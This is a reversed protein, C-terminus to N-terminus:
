RVKNRVQLTHRRTSESLSTNTFGQRRGVIDVIGSYLTLKEVGGLLSKSGVRTVTALGPGLEELAKIHIRLFNERAAFHQSEDLGQKALAINFQKLFELANQGVGANGTTGEAVIGPVGDRQRLNVETAATPAAGAVASKRPVIGGRGAALAVHHFLLNQVINPDGERDSRLFGVGETVHTLILM